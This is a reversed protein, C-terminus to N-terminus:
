SNYGDATGNGIILTQLTPAPQTAELENQALENLYQWLASSKGVGPSGVLLVHEKDLYDRIGKFLPLTIKEPREGQRKEETKIFQEFTFIAQGEAITDTLANEQRWREYRRSIGSLYANVASSDVMDTYLGIVSLAKGIM